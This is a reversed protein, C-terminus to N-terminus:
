ACISADSAEQQLVNNTVIPSFCFGNLVVPESASLVVTCGLWEVTDILSQLLVPQQWLIKESVLLLGPRLAAARALRVRAQISQPLAHINHTDAGEPLAESVHLGGLLLATEIADIDDTGYALNDRISGERLRFEPSVWQVASHLSQLSFTEIPEGELVVTTDKRVEIRTM